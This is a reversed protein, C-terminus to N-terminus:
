TGSRGPAYRAPRALTPAVVGLSVLVLGDVLVTSDHGDPRPLARFELIAHGSVPFPGLSWSSYPGPAPSLTGVLSGGVSVAVMGAAPSSSNLQAAYGTLRFYHHVAGFDVMQCVSGGAGKNARLFAVQVGEPVAGNASILPNGSRYFGALTSRYYWATAPHYASAPGYQQPVTEFGPDRIM